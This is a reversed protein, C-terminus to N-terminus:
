QEEMYAVANNSKNITLTTVEAMAEDDFTLEFANGKMPAVEVTYLRGPTSVAKHMEQIPTLAETETPTEFFSKGFISKYEFFSEDPQPNMEYYQIYEEGYTTLCYKGGVNEILDAEKLAQFTMYSGMNDIQSRNYTIGRQAKKLVEWYFAARGNKTIPRTLEYRAM